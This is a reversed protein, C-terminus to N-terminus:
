NVTRITPTIGGNSLSCLFGNHLLWICRNGQIHARGFHRPWAFRLCPSQNSSKNPNQLREDDNSCYINRKIHHKQELIPNVSLQWVHFRGPSPICSDFHPKTFIEGYKQVNYNTESIQHVSSIIITSTMTKQLMKMRIYVFNNKHDGKSQIKHNSTTWKM